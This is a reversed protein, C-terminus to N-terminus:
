PEVLRLRQGGLEQIMRSLQHPVERARQRAQRWDKDIQKTAKLKLQRALQRFEAREEYEGLLAQVQKLDEVLDSKASPHAVAWEEQYRITKLRLRLAHLTKRKPKAAAERAFAQLADGHIRRLEELRIDVWETSIPSHFLARRRLYGEIKRATGKRSLKALRTRIRARVKRRDSKSAKRRKLYQEFVQLTRLSSLWSVCQRIKRAQRDQGRLELYAQIRRLHIRLRHVIKTRTKGAALSGAAQLAIRRYENARDQDETRRVM